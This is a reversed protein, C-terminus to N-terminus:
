TTLGTARISPSYATQGDPRTWRLYAGVQYLAASALGTILCVYASTLDEVAGMTFLTGVGPEQDRVAVAVAGQITWGTPLAPATIAVSLQDDGPTVVMASPPLGGLAGPSHIFNTLDAQDRLVSLNFKSLANRNTLVKGQAYATWPATFLPPAQKFLAQLWSFTDRTLTQEATQPNAPIVHRRVYKKGKWSSYVMSSAIQGRADFSLLPATTKAM